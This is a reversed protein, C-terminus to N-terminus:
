EMVAGLRDSVPLPDHVRGRALIGAVAGLPDSIPPPDRVGGRAFLPPIVVFELILRIRSGSLHVLLVPNIAWACNLM